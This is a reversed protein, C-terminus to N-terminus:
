EGNAPACRRLRVAISIAGNIEVDNDSPLFHIYVYIQFYLPFCVVYLPFWFTLRASYVFHSNMRNEVILCLVRATPSDKLKRFSFPM